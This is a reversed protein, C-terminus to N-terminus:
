KPETRIQSAAISTTYRRSHTHTCAPNSGHFDLKDIEPIKAAPFKPDEKRPQRPLPSSSFSRLFERTDVCCLAVPDVLFVMELRQERLSDGLDQLHQYRSAGGATAKEGSTVLKM